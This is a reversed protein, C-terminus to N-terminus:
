LEVGYPEIKNLNNSFYNFLLYALLINQKVLEYWSIEDSSVCIESSVWLNSVNYFNCCINWMALTTERYTPIWLFIQVFTVFKDCVSLLFPIYFTHRRTSTQKFCIRNILTSAVLRHLSENSM